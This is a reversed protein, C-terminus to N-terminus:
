VLKIITVRRPCKIPDFYKASFRISVLARQVISHYTGRSGHDVVYSERKMSEQTKIKQSMKM